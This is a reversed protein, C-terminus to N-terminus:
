IMAVVIALTAVGFLPLTPASSHEKAPSQLYLVPESSSDSDHYRYAEGVLLRKEIGISPDHQLAEALNSNTLTSSVGFAFDDVLYYSYEEALSLFHLIDEIWDSVESVKTLTYYDYVMSYFASHLESYDEM